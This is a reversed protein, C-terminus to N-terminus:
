WGTDATQASLVTDCTLGLSRLSARPLRIAAFPRCAGCEGAATAGADAPFLFECKGAPFRLVTEYSAVTMFRQVILLM